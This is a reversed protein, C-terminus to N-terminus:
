TLMLRSDCLAAGVADKQALGVLTRADPAAGASAVTGAAAAILRDGAVVAGTATIQWVGDCAITVTQGVAADHMAVGAVRFSGAAAPVCIRDGVAHEVLRGGVVPTAGVTYTQRDADAVKEIQGNVVSGVVLPSAM